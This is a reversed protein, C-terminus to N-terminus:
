SQVTSNKEDIDEGFFCFLKKIICILMELSVEIIDNKNYVRPNGILKISKEKQCTFNNHVTNRFFRFEHFFDIWYSKNQNKFIGKFKLVESLVRPFAVFKDSELEKIAKQLYNDVNTDQKLLQRANRIYEIVKQSHGQIPIDNEKAIERIRIESVNWLDLLCVRKIHKYYEAFRDEFDRLEPLQQMTLKEWIELNLKIIELINVLYKIGTRSSDRHITIQSDIAKILDRSSAM